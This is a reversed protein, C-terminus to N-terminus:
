MRLRRNTHILAQECMADANTGGDFNLMTEIAVCINVCLFPESGNETKQTQTVMSAINFKSPLKSEYTLHSCLM